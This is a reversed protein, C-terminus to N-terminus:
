RGVQLHGSLVPASAQECHQTFTMDLSTIAGSADTAIEAINFSDFSANCGRGDGSMDFGAEPGLGMARTAVDYRGTHLVQGSPPTVTIDWLVGQPTTVDIRFGRALDSPEGYSFLTFTDAPTSYQQQQGRGIVDGPQSSFSFSGTEFAPQASPATAAPAPPPPPPPPTPTPTTVPAAPATWTWTALMARAASDTDAFNGQGSGYVIYYVDSGYRTDITESQTKTAGNSAVLTANFEMAANHGVTTWTPPAGDVLQYGNQLGIAQLLSALDANGANGGGFLTANFPLVIIEIGENNPGHGSYVTGGQESQPASASWGAPLM